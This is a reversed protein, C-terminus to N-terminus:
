ETIEVILTPSGQTNVFVWTWNPGGEIIEGIGFNYPNPKGVQNIISNVSGFNSSLNITGSAVPTNDPLTRTIIVSVNEGTPVLLNSSLTVGSNIPTLTRTDTSSSFEITYRYLQGGETTTRNLTAQITLEQTPTASLSLTPTITPTPNPTATAAPTSTLTATPTPNPTSSATPTVTSTATPTPNPTSSVNPTATVTPTPTATSTATVTPTPTVTATPTATLTATATPTPTTAQVNSPAAPGGESIPEAFVRVQRPKQGKINGFLSKRNQLESAM